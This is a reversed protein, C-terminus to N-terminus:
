YVKEVIKFRRPTLEDRLGRVFEEYSITGDGNVDYHKMLAQLDSKKVFLGALNLANEFEKQDLTGSGNYDVKQFMKKLGRLGDVKRKLWFKFQLNLENVKVQLGVGYLSM